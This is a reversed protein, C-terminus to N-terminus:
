FVYMFANLRVCVEMFKIFKEADVNSYADNFIRKKALELWSKVVDPSNKTWCIDSFENIGICACVVNEWNVVQCHRFNSDLGADSFEKMLLAEDEGVAFLGIGMTIVVLINKIYKNCWVVLVM